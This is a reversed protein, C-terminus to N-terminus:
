LEKIVRVVAASLKESAFAVVDNFTVEANEHASDSICRIVVFPVKEIYAIQAIAGSEMDCAIADFNKVIEQAVAKKAVFQDGCAFTGLKADLINVFKKSLKDDTEFYVKNVTSVFGLPDGLATTDCDHQVVKSAVVMEMIESRGLGGSVGTSIAFEINFHNLLLTFAYSANVKGIGSLVIAVEKSGIVGLYFDKQGIKTQKYDTMKDFYPQLESEMAVIIGIM